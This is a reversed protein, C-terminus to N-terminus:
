KIFQGVLWRMNNQIDTKVNLQVTCLGIASIVPTNKEMAKEKPIEEAIPVCEKMM